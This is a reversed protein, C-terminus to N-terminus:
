TIEAILRCLPPAGGAVSLRHVYDHPDLSLRRNWVPVRRLFAVVLWGLRRVSKACGNWGAEASAPGLQIRAASAQKRVGIPIHERSRSTM